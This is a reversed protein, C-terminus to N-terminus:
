WVNCNILFHIGSDQLDHKSEDIKRFGYGWYIQTSLKPSPNWLLGAGISSLTRFDNTPRNKNESWGWDFFIALQVLGDTEAKSIKPIALTFVPHRYEISSVVGNDRVLQNERYGRVSNSGGVSFTELSLLPRDAFQCDTRLICQGGLAEIRRALQFQGLWAVFQGDPEFSNITADFADIGVSLRSRIALVQNASRSIWNQHFRIVTVKSEGKQPGLSFTFPRSFLYTTSSRIEGEIGLTFEMYNTQYFPHSLKLGFVDSESEIDIKDFPEEVVMSDSKSYNFTLRTEHATLPIDYTVAIDNGKEIWGSRISLSDGWGTLNQHEGFIEGRYAGVDPSRNNALQFGLRYPSNEVVTAKLTADGLRIGPIIEANVRKILPNQILSQFNQQLENINLAPGTNRLFRNQIYRNRLRQNGEIEVGTVKGEVLRFMVENNKIKQDPLVAGSNIYGNAIYFQTLVQRVNLLDDFQMDRNVYEALIRSLTEDSFVHNGKFRYKKVFIKHTSYLTSDPKDPTQSDPYKFDDLPIDPAYDPLPPRDNGPRQLQDMFPINVPNGTPEANAKSFGICLSIAILCASCRVFQLFYSRMREVGKRILENFNSHNFLLIVGSTMWHPQCLM